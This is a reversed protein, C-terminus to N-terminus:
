EEFAFRYRGEPLMFMPIDRDAHVIMQDVAIAGDSERELFAQVLRRGSKPLLEQPVPHQRRYGNMAMWDPRGYQYTTPPHFVQMDADGSYTGLVLHKGDAEHRLVVASKPEEAGGFINELVRAYVSEREPDTMTTQDITLPEIGTLTKLRGAMWQVSNPSEGRPRPKKMLHSFGVYIFVRARPNDRFIRDVVNAAQGTERENISDAPREAASINGAHEYAVPMYGLKLSHRVLDAFLPERTYFGDARKPYGRARLGAADLNISFTECALYEFGIKRLETAVLLAFARHRAIHHAENLVVIQRDRAANVIATIADLPRFGQVLEKAKEPDDEASRTGRAGSPNNARRFAELSGAYDGTLSRAWALQQFASSAERNPAANNDEAAAEIAAVIDACRKEMEALLAHASEAFVHRPRTGVRGANATSGAATEKSQYMARMGKLYDALPGLGLEGRRRDVNAEDEIPQLGLVGNEWRGQSGYVQPKGEHVLVRDLLLAYSSGPLKKELYAQRVLPLMEKQFAPTSHQVLLWAAQTGDEGVLEPGPWGHERVIEKVRETNERDVAHMRDRITPDPNEAGSKILANRVEQDRERRDLLERRLEPMRIETLPQASPVSTEQALSSVTALCCLHVILSYRLHYM